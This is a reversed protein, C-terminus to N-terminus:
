LTKPSAIDSTKVIKLLAVPSTDTSMKHLLDATDNSLLQKERSLSLLIIGIESCCMVIKCNKFQFKNKQLVDVTVKM